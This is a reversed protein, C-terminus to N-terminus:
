SNLACPISLVSQPSWTTTSSSQMGGVGGWGQGMRRGKWGGAGCERVGIGVGGELRGRYTEQSVGSVFLDNESIQVWVM